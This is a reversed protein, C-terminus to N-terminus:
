SDRKALVDSESMILVKQNDIDFETGAYKAYIVHDGEAVAMPILGGDDKTTGPGAAIVKGEQPKEKATEPVFIGGATVEDDEQPEIVIRDGLPRIKKGM